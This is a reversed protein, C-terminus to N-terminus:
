FVAAFSAAAQKLITSAYPVDRDLRRMLEVEGAPLGKVEKNNIYIRATIRYRGSQLSDGLIDRVAIHRYHNTSVGPPVNAATARTCGVGNFTLRGILDPNEVVPNQEWVSSKWVRGGRQASASFQGIECAAFILMQDHDSENTVRVRVLLTDAPAGALESQASFRLHDFRRGNSLDDGRHHHCGISLAFIAPLVLRFRHM